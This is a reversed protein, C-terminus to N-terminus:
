NLPEKKRLFKTAENAAQLHMKGATKVAVFGRNSLVLQVQKKESRNCNNTSDFLFREM